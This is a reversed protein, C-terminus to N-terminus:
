LNLLDQFSFRLVMLEAYKLTDKERDKGNNEAARSVPREEMGKKVVVVVVVADTVVAAGVVM